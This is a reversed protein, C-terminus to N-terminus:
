VPVTPCVYVRVTRAFPADTLLVLGVAIVTVGTAVGTIVEIAWDPDFMVTVDVPVPRDILLGAPSEAGDPVDVNLKVPPDPFVVYENVTVAVPVFAVDVAVDAKVVNPVGAIVDAVACPVAVIVTFQVYSAVAGFTDPNVTYELVTLVAM